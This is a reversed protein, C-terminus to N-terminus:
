IERRVGVPLDSIRRVEDSELWAPSRICHLLMPTADEGWFLDTGLVFTPVGFVGLAIAQETNQRLQAKVDPRATAQALDAVGLRGALAQVDRASAPDGGDRWVFRVIERIASRTCGAAIALRLLALSNFPHAAPMRFPIGLQEARFQAHRYTFRRKPALEAPGKSDWHTLLAGPLVPRFSISLEAPLCDFQEFQLYAFPSIFDFYWDLPISPPPSTATPM